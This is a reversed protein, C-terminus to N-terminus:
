IKKYDDSFLDDDNITKLKTGIPTNDDSKEISMDIDTRIIQDRFYYILDNVVSDTNGKIIELDMWVEPGLLERVTTIFSKQFRLLETENIKYHSSNYLSLDNITVSSFANKKTEEYLFIISHFRRFAVERKIYKFIYKFYIEYNKIVKFMLFLYPLLFLIIYIHIM